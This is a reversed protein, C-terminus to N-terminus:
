RGRPFSTGYKEERSTLCHESGALFDRCMAPRAVYIGCRHDAGLHVCASTEPVIPLIRWDAGPVARTHKVLEPRGAARFRALDGPELVVEAGFCCAACKVCDFRFPATSGPADDDRVVWETVRERFDRLIPARVFGKAPGARVVQAKKAEIARVAWDVFPLLVGRQGSGAGLMSWRRGRIVAVGGARAHSMAAPLSRADFFRWLPRM